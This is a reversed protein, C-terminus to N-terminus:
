IAIMNLMSTDLVMKLTMPIIRGLISRLVGLGNTFVRGVWGIFQNYVYLWM